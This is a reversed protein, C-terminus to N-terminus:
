SSDKELLLNVIDQFLRGVEPDALVDGHMRNSDDSMWWKYFVFLHRNEARAVSEAEVYDMRWRYDSCGCTLAIPVLLLCCTVLRLNAPSTSCIVRMMRGEHQHLQ